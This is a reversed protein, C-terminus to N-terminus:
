PRGQQAPSPRSHPLPVPPPSPTLAGAQGLGVPEPSLFAAVSRPVVTRFWVRPVPQCLHLHALDVFRLVPLSCITAM